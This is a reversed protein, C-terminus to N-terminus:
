PLATGTSGGATAQCSAFGNPNFRRPDSRNRAALGKAVEYDQRYAQLGQSTEGENNLIDGLKSFSVALDRQWNVNQPDSMALRQIVDHGQRVLKEAPKFKGQKMFADGNKVFSVAVDHRWQVNEPDTEVLRQRIQLGEQYAQLAKDVKGLVMYVDGLKNASVSQGRMWQAVGPNAKALESLTAHAEKYYRLAEARDPESKPTARSRLVGAMLHRLALGEEAFGLRTYYVQVRETVERMLEQRNIPEIREQADYALSSVLQDTVAEVRDACQTLAIAHRASLAALYAEIGAAGGLIASFIGFGIIARTKWRANRQKLQSELESFTIFQFEVRSLWNARKDRLQLAQELDFGTLLFKYSSQTQDLLAHEWLIARPMLSDHARKDAAAEQLWSQYAPWQTVLSEHSLEVTPHKEDGGTQLLRNGQESALKQALAWASDSLDDRSVVRRTVGATDGLRVLRILLPGLLSQEEVNLRKHLVEDALQPLAGTVRGIATYAETLSIYNTRQDWARTIALQMLALDGPQDGIDALVAQAFEPDDKRKTLSLPKRICEELQNHNMRRVLYRGQETLAFLRRVALM